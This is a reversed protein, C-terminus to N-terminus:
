NSHMADTFLEQSGIKAYDDISSSHRISRFNLHPTVESIDLLFIHYIGHNILNLEFYIIM